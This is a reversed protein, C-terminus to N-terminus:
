TGVGEAATWFRETSARVVGACAAECMGTRVTFPLPKVLPRAPLASPFLPEFRGAIPAIFGRAPIGFAGACLAGVMFPRGPAMGLVDPVVGRCRSSECFRGGEAIGFEARVGLEVIFLLAGCRVPLPGRAQSACPLVVSRPRAGAPKPLEFRGESLDARGSRM